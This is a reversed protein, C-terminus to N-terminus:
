RFVNNRVKKHILTTIVKNSLLMLLLKSIIKALHRNNYLFSHIPYLVFKNKSLKICEIYDKSNFPLTRFLLYNIHKNVKHKESLSNIQPLINLISQIKSQSYSLFLKKSINDNHIRYFALKEGIHYYYYKHSLKLNMDYDEIELNSDFNGIQTLAEKKILMSLPLIVINGILIDEFINGVPFSSKHQKSLWTVNLKNSTDDILELDSYIVHIDKKSDNIYAIQKNIKDLHLLDDSAIFQIYDGSAETLGKNLATTIKIPVSELIYLIDIHSVKTQKIFENIIDPSHDSSANDIIIIEIKEYTQTILSKLCQLVYREANYNLCIISVLPQM